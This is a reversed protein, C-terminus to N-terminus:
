NKPNALELKEKDSNWKWENGNIIIKNYGLKVSNGKNKEEQARKRLQKGKELEKKTMDENIFIRQSKNNKLKHKNRMVKEKDNTKTFEVLHTKEGLKQVKKIDTQVEIEKEIMNGVKRKLIEQDNTDIRLGTIVINNKRREKEIWEVRREMEELKGVIKKNENRLKSNEQKLLDNEERIKRIEEKIETQELCIKKQDTKMETIMEILLDLKENYGKSPKSPSRSIKTSSAFIGEERQRKRRGDDTSYDDSDM